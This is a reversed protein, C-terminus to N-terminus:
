RWLAWYTPPLPPPIMVWCVCLNVQCRFHGRTVVEKETEKRLLIEQKLQRQERDGIGRSM